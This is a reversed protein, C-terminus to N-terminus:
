SRNYLYASSSRMRNKLREHVLFLVFEDATINIGSLVIFVNKATIRLNKALFNIKSGNYPLLWYQTNLSKKLVM